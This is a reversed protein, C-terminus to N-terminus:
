HKESTTTVVIKTWYFYSSLLGSVIESIIGQVSLLIKDFISLFILSNM